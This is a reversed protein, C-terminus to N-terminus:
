KGHHVDSSLLIATESGTNIWYHSLGDAERSVEGAQHVIPVKCSSRYETVTGSMTYILAPRDAHSHMPVIGGPELVLRRTRLQRDPVNIEAGLDVTGIVTDIVGKPMTPAGSLPNAGIQNAPCEGAMAPSAFAALSVAALLAAASQRLTLYPM